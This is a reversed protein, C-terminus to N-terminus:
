RSGLTWQNKKAFKPANKRGSSRDRDYRAPPNIPKIAPSSAGDLAGPRHGLRRCKIAAVAPHHARGSGSRKIAAILHSKLQLKNPSLTIKPIVSM